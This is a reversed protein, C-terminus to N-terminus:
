VAAAASETSSEAAAGREKLLGVVELITKRYAEQELLIGSVHGTKITRFHAPKWQERMREWQPETFGIYEDETGYVFVVADSRRPPLFNDIDTISLFLRMRKKAEQVPDLEAESTQSEGGAADAVANALKDYSEAVAQGTLMKDLMQLEHRKYLSRWNCSGSLLGDAFVPVASPPALWATAGVDGPFVSAVMAAHLGGMSSGAIVLQSYGHYDRFHELLSKAEEITAQGLIPLDSVRRLKSGKQQPPKRKGYFPGELILTAVGKKALPIAVSTRRHLFGHEGTGPLLVVLPIDEGGHPVGGGEREWDLPTVLECFADLSQEPLLQQANGLTSRFRGERLAVRAVSLQRVKGWNPEGEALAVVDSMRRSQLLERIRKPTNLDGWGDSFFGNPFLVPNQTVAAAARDLYRHHSATVGDLLRSPSRLLAALLRWPHLLPIGPTQLQLLWRWRSLPSRNPLRMSSPAALIEPATWYPSTGGSRQSVKSANESFQDPTGFGALKAEVRAIDLLLQMKERKWSLSFCMFDEYTETQDRSPNSQLLYERLDGLELYETLLCLNQLSSWAVGVFSLISPHQLSASLRITRVFTKVENWSRQQEKSLRKAAVCRDHLVCLWVESHSGRAILHHFQLLEFPIQAHKLQPDNALATLVERDTLKDNSPSGSALSEATLALSLSLPSSEWATPSSSLMELFDRMSHPNGFVDERDLLPENRPKTSNNMSQHSSMSIQYAESNQTDHKRQESRRRLYIFVAIGTVLLAAAGVILVPITQRWNGPTSDDHQLRTVNTDDTASNDSDYQFSASIDSKYDESGLEQTASSAYKDEVLAVVYENLWKTMLSSNTPRCWRGDSERYEICPIVLSSTSTESSCTQTSYPEDQFESATHIAFLIASRGASSDSWTHRRVLANPIKNNGLDSLQPGTAWVPAANAKSKVSACACQVIDDIHTPGCKSSLSWAVMANDNASCNQLDCGAAQVQQTQLALNDMTAGYSSTDCRTYIEALVGDDGFAYGGDWLLARQLLGPLSDFSLGFHQLRATIEDPVDQELPIPANASSNGDNEPKQSAQYWFIQYYASVFDTSANALVVCTSHVFSLAFIMVVRELPSLLSTAM